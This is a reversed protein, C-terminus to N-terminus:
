AFERWQIGAEKMFSALRKPDLSGFPFKVGKEAMRKRFSILPEEPLGLLRLFAPESFFEEAPLDFIIRGERLGIVRDVLESIFPIDHGIILAGKGSGSLKRVTEQMDIHAAPDLFASPEDLILYDPDGTLACALSLKRKEGGSLTDVIRDEFGALGAKLLVPDIDASGSLLNKAATEIEDAVTPGIFAPDPM